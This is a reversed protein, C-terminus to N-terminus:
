RFLAPDEVVALSILVNLPVEDRRNPVLEETLRLDVEVARSVEVHNGRLILHAFGGLLFAVPRDGFWVLVPPGVVDHIAALVNM